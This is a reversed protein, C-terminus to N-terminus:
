YLNIGTIEFEAKFNYKQQMSLIDSKKTINYNFYLEEFNGMMVHALFEKEPHGHKGGNTSVLLKKASIKKNLWALNPKTTGHHSIKILDYQTELQDKWLESESDGMFLLSLGKYRIDVVISVCNVENMEALLSTNLWEKIDVIGASIQERIPQSIESQGHYFAILEFLEAFEESKNWIYDKGFNLILEKNLWKQFNKIETTGPSLVKIECNDFYYNQGQIIPQSNNQKNINYHYKACIIEFSKSQVASINGSEGQLQMKIRGRIEKCKNLMEKSVKNNEHKHMIESDMIINFIGNHWIEDVQIIRPNNADGNDEIFSKAGSIHDEDIHTIILLSIKCGKEALKQLLPKLVDRYTAPYGCDILICNKNDLELLSCDGSKAPLFHVVCKATNTKM